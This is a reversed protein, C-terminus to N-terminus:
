ILKKTNLLLSLLKNSICFHSARLINRESWLFLCAQFEKKSRWKKKVAFFHLLINDGGKKSGRLINKKVGCFFPCGQCFKHVGGFFIIAFLSFFDDFFHEGGGFFIIKQEGQLIKKLVFFCIYIFLLYRFNTITITSSDADTWLIM